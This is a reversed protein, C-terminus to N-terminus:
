PRTCPACDASTYLTVPYRQMAQRLAFPLSAESAGAGGGALGADRGLATVRANGTAPPRDTYTVSGDPQVVKYMAQALNPAFVGATLLLGLAWALGPRAPVAPHRPRM